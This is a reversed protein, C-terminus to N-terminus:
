PPSTLRRPVLTYDVGHNPNRATYLKSLTEFLDTEEGLTAAPAMRSADLLLDRYLDLTVEVDSSHALASEIASRYSLWAAVFVLGIVVLWRWNSWTATPDRMVFALLGIATALWTASLRISVDLQTVEDELTQAHKEPLVPYLRRWIAISEIGYRAGAREEMARLVNGLATPLLHDRAPLRTLLAERAEDRRARALHQDLENDSVAAVTRDALRDFRRRQMEVGLRFAWALRPSSWYGEFLQVLRFQLPQLTLSIAASVFLLIVGGAVGIRTIM